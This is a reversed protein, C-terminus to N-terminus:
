SGGLQRKRNRNMQDIRRQPNFNRQFEYERLEEQHDQRYRVKYELLEERREQYRRQMYANKYARTAPCMESVLIGTAHRGTCEPHECIM